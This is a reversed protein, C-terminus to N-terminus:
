LADFFAQESDYRTVRGAAIDADAEAEGRQWEDTEFWAQTDDAQNALLAGYKPEEGAGAFHSEAFHSEAFQPGSCAAEPRQFEILAEASTSIAVPETSGLIIM